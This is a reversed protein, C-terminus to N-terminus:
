VGRSAYTTVFRDRSRQLLGRRQPGLGARHAATFSATSQTQQASRWYGQTHLRSSNPRLQSVEVRWSSPRCAKWPRGGEEARLPWEFFSLNQFIDDNM